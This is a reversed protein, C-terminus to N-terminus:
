SSPSQNDFTRYYALLANKVIHSMPVGYTLSDKNLRDYLVVPLWLSFSKQPISGNVYNKSM